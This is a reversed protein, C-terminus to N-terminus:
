TQRHGQNNTSPAITTTDPEHKVEEVYPLQQEGWLLGEKCEQLKILKIHSAYSLINNVKGEAQEQDKFYFPCTYHEEGIAYTITWLFSENSAM